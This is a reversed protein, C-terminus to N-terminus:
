FLTLLELIGSKSAADSLWSGLEIVVEILDMMTVLRGLM